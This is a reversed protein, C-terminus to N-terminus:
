WVVCKVIRFGLSDLRSAWLVRQLIQTSSLSLPSGERAQPLSHLHHGCALRLHLVRTRGLPISFAHLPGNGRHVQLIMHDAIKHLMFAYKVLDAINQM